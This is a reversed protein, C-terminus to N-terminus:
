ASRAYSNFFGGRPEKTEIRCCEGATHDMRSMLGHQIEVGFPIADGLGAKPQWHISIKGARDTTFSHKVYWQHAM